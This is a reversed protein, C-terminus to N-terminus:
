TDVSIKISPGLVLHRRVEREGNSQTDVKDYDTNKRMFQVSDRHSNLAACLKLM